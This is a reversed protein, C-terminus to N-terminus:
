QLWDATPSSRLPPRRDCQAQSPAGPGNPLFRGIHYAARRSIYTQHQLSCTARQANCTAVHANCTAVHANRTRPAGPGNSLFLGDYDENQIPHNYPVVTVEAGRQVLCRIMNHKIGCDLAVIKLQNGKGYVQLDITRQSCEVNM